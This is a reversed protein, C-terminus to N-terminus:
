QEDEEIVEVFKRTARYNYKQQFRFADSFNNHNARSLVGKKDENVYIVRPERPKIRYNESPMNFNLALASFNHYISDFWQDGHRYQITEGKLYARIIQEFRKIEELKQKVPDKM